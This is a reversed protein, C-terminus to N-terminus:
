SISLQEYKHGEKEAFKYNIFHKIDKSSYTYYGGSKYKGLMSIYNSFEDTFLVSKLEEETRETLIYLGSYVGTGPPCLTLKIDGADRILANIAYKNKYVDGIGQTRGFGYWNGSNELSRSKLKEAHQEYHFRIAPNKTLEEFPILMGDQRYPYFCKKMKGTSAKIVPITFEDFLLDGIFFDDFLTAFGNKVECASIYNKYLVTKKFNNLMAIDSFVFSGNIYFDNYFLETVFKPKLNIEDYEFYGVSKQAKKTLMVITTYTTAEFPQFHKLDVVAKIYKNYMLNKRMVTGAISNFFSSPSIYCLVGKENLMNLGIEYFVIFLDTM